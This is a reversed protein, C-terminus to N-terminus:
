LYSRYIKIGALKQFRKVMPSNPDYGYQKIRNQREEEIIKETKPRVIVDGAGRLLDYGYYEAIFVCTIFLGILTFPSLLIFLITIM